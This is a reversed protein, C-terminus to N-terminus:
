EDQGLIECNQLDKDKNEVPFFHLRIWHWGPRAVHFTYTAQSEFIKASLYVRSPVDSSPVSVKIDRGEYALYKSTDQDGLFARQGPLTTSSTAGCDLLFSDQPTFSDSKIANAFSPVSVFLVLLIAAMASASSPPSLRLNSSSPRRILKEM